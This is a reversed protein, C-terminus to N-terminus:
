SQWWPKITDRGDAPNIRAPMVAAVLDRNYTAWVTARTPGNVALLTADGPAIISAAKVVTAVLRPNLLPDGAPQEDDPKLADPIIREIDPYKGPQLPYTATINVPDKYARTPWTPGKVTLGKAGVTLTLNHDAELGRPPAKFTARIAAASAVPLLAELRGKIDEPRVRVHGLIYRNTATATLHGDVTALKVTNLIPLSMGDDAFLSAANLLRHLDAHAITVTDPM